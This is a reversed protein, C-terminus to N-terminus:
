SPTTPTAALSRPPEAPEPEAWARNSSSHSSGWDGNRRTKPSDPKLVGAKPKGLIERKCDQLSVFTKGLNALAVAVRAREVRDSSGVFDGRLGLAVEYTIEQFDLVQRLSLRRGPRARKSGNVPM